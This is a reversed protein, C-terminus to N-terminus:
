GVETTGSCVDLAAQSSDLFWDDGSHAYVLPDSDTISYVSQGGAVVEGTVLARGGEVTVQLDDIEVEPIALVTKRLRDVLGSLTEVPCAAGAAPSLTEHLDALDSANWLEVQEQVRAKVQREPSLQRLILFGAVGVLVLGAIGWLALRTPDPGAM